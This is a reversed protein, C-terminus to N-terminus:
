YDYVSRKLVQRLVDQDSRSLPLGSPSASTCRPPTRSASPSRLWMASGENVLSRREGDSDAPYRRYHQQRRQFGSAVPARAEWDIVARRQARYVNDREEKSVALSLSLAKALALDDDDHDDHDDGIVALGARLGATPVAAPLRRPDVCRRFSPPSLNSPPPARREMDIQRAEGTSGQTEEGKGAAEEVKFRLDPFRLVPPEIAPGWINGRRKM